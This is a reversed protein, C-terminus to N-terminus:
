PSPSDADLHDFSVEEWLDPSAVSIRSAPVPSRCVLEFGAASVDPWGSLDVRLLALAAEPGFADEMWSSAGAEVAALDPFLYVAPEIEGYDRSRPGIRPMLGERLIADLNETPTAHWAVLQSM